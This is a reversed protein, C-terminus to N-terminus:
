MGNELRALWGHITSIAKGIAKSIGELFLGRKRHMAAQLM